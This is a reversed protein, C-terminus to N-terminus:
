VLDRMIHILDRTQRDASFHENFWPSFEVHDSPLALFELLTEDVARPDSNPYVCRYPVGARALIREAPSEPM